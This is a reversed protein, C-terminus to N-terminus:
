ALQQFDFLWAREGAFAAIQRQEFGAGFKFRSGTPGAEVFRDVVFGNQNNGIIAVSPGANLVDTTATASMQPM